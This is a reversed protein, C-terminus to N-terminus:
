KHHYKVKKIFKINGTNFIKTNSEPNEKTHSRKFNQNDLLFTQPETNEIREFGLIEYSRGDSWDRDAYTMIDDSDHEKTFAKLLKDIGGMVSYGRLSAFRILEYSREGMRKGYKMLRGGSFTAVAILQKEESNIGLYKESYQTKLFLGYKFKAKVSGQLHNMILFKHSIKKDIREVICHRANIRKFIGIM